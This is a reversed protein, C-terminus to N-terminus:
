RDDDRGPTVSGDTTDPRRGVRVGVDEFVGEHWYESFSMIRSPRSGDIRYSLYFFSAAPTSSTHPDRPHFAYASGRTAGGSPGDGSKDVTEGTTDGWGPEGTRDKGRGQNERGRAEGDRGVGAGEEVVADSGVSGEM